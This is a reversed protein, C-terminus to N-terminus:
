DLAEAVRCNKSFQMKKCPEKKWTIIKFNTWANVHGNNQLIKWTKSKKLGAKGIKWVAGIKPGTAVWSFDVFKFKKSELHYNSVDYINFLYIPGPPLGAACMTANM